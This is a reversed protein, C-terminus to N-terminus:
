FRCIIGEVALGPVSKNPRPCFKLKILPIGCSVTFFKGGNLIRNVTTSESSIAPKGPFYAPGRPACAAVAAVLAFLRAQTLQDLWLFALVGCCAYAIAWLVYLSLDVHRLASHIEDTPWLRVLLARVADLGPPQIHLNLLSEIPADRLDAISVTRMLSQASSFLRANVFISGDRWAMALAARDKISGTPNRDELKAWLRVNPAPSLRPLGVLPTNGVSELLSPYRM